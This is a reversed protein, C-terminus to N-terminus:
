VPIICIRKGNGSRLKIEFKNKYSNDRTFLFTFFFGMGMNSYRLCNKFPKELKKMYVKM